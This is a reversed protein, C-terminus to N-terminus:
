KDKTTLEKDRLAFYINQLKHVYKITAICRDMRKQRYIDPIWFSFDEPRGLTFKNWTIFYEGIKYTYHSIKNTYGEFVKDDLKGFRKLWGETLPIGYAYNYYCEAGIEMGLGDYIIIDKLERVIFVPEQKGESQTFYNGIRLENAEM